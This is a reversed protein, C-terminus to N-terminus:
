ARRRQCYWDGASKVGFVSAFIPGSVHSHIPTTATMTDFAIGCAANVHLTFDNAIRLPETMRQVRVAMPCAAIRKSCKRYAGRCNEQREHLIRTIFSQLGCSPPASIPQRHTAHLVSSRICIM